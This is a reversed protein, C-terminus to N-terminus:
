FVLFIMSFKLIGFICLTLLIDFDLRM